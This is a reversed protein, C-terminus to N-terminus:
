LESKKKRVELNLGSISVVEVEEGKDITGGTASAKWYEGKIKVTGTPNLPETVKGIKGIMAEAGVVIRRRITPIVAKHMIFIFVVMILIVILILPWTIEVHFLWLGLFIFALILVDDILSAAVILWAKLLSLEGKKDM